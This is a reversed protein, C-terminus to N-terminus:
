EFGNRFLEDEEYAGIDVHPGIKRPKGELDFAGAGGPPTDYGADVLASARVLNFNFCLLGSCTAFAPDVSLNNQSLADPATGARTGIDNNFATFASGAYLDVAGSANNNWFINNSLWLHTASAGVVFLGGIQPPFTTTATNGVVTNGTVYADSSQTLLQAAGSHLADNLFFLNSRVTLLGATTEVFLGGANDDAHNLLFRNAELSVDGNLAAIRLGGGGNTTAKGDIFTIHQINVSAVASSSGIIIRMVQYLGSGDFTTRATTRQECTADFGGLITISKAENSVYFFGGPVVTYNGAQIDIEDNQGNSAASNLAAQMSAASNVCFYAAHACLPVMAVLWALIQVVCHRRKRM